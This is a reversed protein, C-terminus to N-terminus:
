NLACFGGRRCPPQRTRYSPSKQIAKLRNRAGIVGLAYGQSVGKALSVSTHDFLKRSARVPSCFLSTLARCLKSTSVRGLISTNARCLSSTIARSDLHRLRVFFERGRQSGQVIELFLSLVDESGCFQAPYM